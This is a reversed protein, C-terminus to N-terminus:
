SMSLITIIISSTNNNHFKITNIDEIHLEEEYLPYKIENENLEIGVEDTSHFRLVAENTKTFLYNGAPAITKQVATGNPRFIASEIASKTSSELAIVKAQEVMIFGDTPTVNSAIIIMNESSTGEIHLFCRRANEVMEGLSDVDAVIDTLPYLEEDAPTDKFSVQITVGVPIYLVKLHNFVGIEKRKENCSIKLKESM